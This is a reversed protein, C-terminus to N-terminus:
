LVFNVHGGELAIGLSVILQNLLSSLLSRGDNDAINVTVTDTLLGHSDPWSFRAAIAAASM